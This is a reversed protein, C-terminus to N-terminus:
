DAWHQLDRLILLTRPGALPSGPGGSAPAVHLCLRYPHPRPHRPSRPRAAPTGLAGAMPAPM